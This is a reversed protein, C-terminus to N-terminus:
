RGAKAPHALLIATRIMTWKVFRRTQDPDAAAARAPQHADVAAAVDIQHGSAFRFPEAKPDALYAEVAADIEQDTIEAARRLDGITPARRAM